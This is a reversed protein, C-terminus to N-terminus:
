KASVTTATHLRLKEWRELEVVPYLILRGWKIFRPGDGQARWHKLTSTTVRLRAAAEAPKLNLGDAM